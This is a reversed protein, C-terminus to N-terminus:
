RGRARNLYTAANGHTPSLRLATELHEIAADRQGRQLFGIGLNSQADANRPDLAVAQQLHPMAGEVDGKELLAAGLNNRAVANEPDSAVGARFHEIAEALRGSRALLAGLTAHADAHLPNLRLTAELEAMAEETRGQRLRVVAINSHADAHDPDLRLVEAFRALAGEPDGRRLRVVGLSNYADARTPDLRVSEELHRAAGDLDGRELLVSGLRFHVVASRGGIALARDFAQRAAETEGKQLLVAGLNIPAEVFEPDLAMAQRLHSLAAEPDRKRLAIGLNNHAHVSGPYLAVARELSHLADDLRGQKALSLGRHAWTDALDPLIQLARDFHRVAEEWRKQSHYVLGLTNYAVYNDVTVRNAHEFLATSNQWVAAQRWTLVALVLVAVGGAAALARAAPRGLASLGWVLAIFVGLLPVYAYRDARAQGGVQVLGIVPVLTGLYWLWGVPVAAQRRLRWALASLAGLVALALLLAAPQVRRPHPYFAALGAPWVLDGLYAAYSIAANSLRASWPLHSLMSTAGAGTQAALTLLCAAVVLAFLPLKERLLVWAQRRADPREPSWRGLPWWDLLLLVCPLTVVMPKSMLGLALLLAVLAYRAVSPQRAYRAYAGIALLWFFTSLVNKRESVWAVSEVNLPHVAFLAAVLASRWVAGTMAFLVALVLVANAAHLAVNTLHHGAPRLGYLQCDLQHSIWTVPHWNGAAFATFAWALGPGSLGPAVHLNEVVYHHDDYNVFQARWAPAYAAGTVAVLLLAPLALRAWPRAAPLPASPAAAPPSAAVAARLTKRRASKGMSSDVTDSVTSELGPNTVAAARVYDHRRGDAAAVREDQRRQRTDSAIWLTTTGPEGEASSIEAKWAKFTGAAVTSAGRQGGGQAAEANVKQQRVDFNRFTTSYGEALPLRALAEHAGAGDAFLAGGLDVAVPRSQGGMSMTGSAKGDQFSLEIEVPGQKITRKTVVLTGKELATTDVAEGMPLKASETVM